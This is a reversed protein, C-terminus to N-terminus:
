DLARFRVADDLDFTRAIATAMSTTTAPILDDAVQALAELNDFEPVCEPLPKDAGILGIVGSHWGSLKRGGRLFVENKFDAATYISMLEYPVGSVKVAQYQRIDVYLTERYSKKGIYERHTVTSFSAHSGVAEDDRYMEYFKKQPVGKFFRTAALIGIARVCEYHLDGSLPIRAQEAHQELKWAGVEIGLRRLTSQKPSM